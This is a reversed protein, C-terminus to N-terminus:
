LGELVSNVLAENPDEQGAFVVLFNEKTLVLLNGQYKTRALIAERGYKEMPVVEGVKALHDKMRGIKESAAQSDLSPSVLVTMVESGRAYEALYAPSLFKHGLPAGRVYALSHPVLGEQPFSRVLEPFDGAKPLKGSVADAFPTLWMSATGSEAYADIKVYYRDQFFNLIDGSQYGETGIQLFQGDRAREGTYIGFADLPSGMDYIDVTVETGAVMYVQHALREFDALEFNYICHEVEPRQYIDGYTHVGDWDIDWVARLKQLYM